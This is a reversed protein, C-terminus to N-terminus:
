AEGAEEGPTAAAEKRALHASGANHTELDCFKPQPGGLDHPPVAPRDCGPYICMLTETEM